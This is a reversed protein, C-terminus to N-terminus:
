IDLEDLQEYDEICILSVPIPINFMPYKPDNYYVCYGNVHKSFYRLTKSDLETKIIVKTNIIKKFIDYFKTLDGAYVDSEMIVLDRVEESYSISACWLGWLNIPMKVEYKKFKM